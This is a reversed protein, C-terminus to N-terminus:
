ECIKLLPLPLGPVMQLLTNELQTCRACCMLGFSLVAALSATVKIDRNVVGKKHCYDLGIVM